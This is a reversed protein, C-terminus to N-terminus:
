LLSFQVDSVQADAPVLYDRKSQLERCLVRTRRLKGKKFYRGQLKFISGEPIDSLIAFQHANKDFKRFAQTLATDAFSSAKPNIMHRRLEHLIEEPFVNEWLLPVLLETFTTKWEEGHPDVRSGFQLYVKLHAVEHIYTTLFLYPNLDHNLTIQPHSKTRRSTFDGVKTQRSRTLKLTFPSSKWLDFCYAVADAPIHLRLIELVKDAKM